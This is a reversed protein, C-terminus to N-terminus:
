DTTKFENSVDGENFNNQNITVANAPKKGEPVPPLKVCGRFPMDGPHNAALFDCMAYGREAIQCFGSNKLTIFKLSELQDRAHEYRSRPRGNFPGLKEDVVVYLGDRGDVFLFGDCKAGRVLLDIAEAVLDVDEMSKAEEVMEKVKKASEICYQREPSGLVYFYTGERSEDGVASNIRTIKDGEYEIPSGSDETNMPTHLTITKM